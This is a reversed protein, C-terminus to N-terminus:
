SIALVALSLSKGMDSSSIKNSKFLVTESVVRIEDYERKSFPYAASSKNM